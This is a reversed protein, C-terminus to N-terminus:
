AAHRLTRALSSSRLRLLLPPCILCELWQVLLVEDVTVAKLALRNVDGLPGLDSVKTSKNTFELTFFTYCYAVEGLTEKVKTLVKVSTPVHHCASCLKHEQLRWLGFAVRRQAQWHRPLAVRLPSARFTPLNQKIPLSGAMWHASLRLLSKTMFITDSPRNAIRPCAEIGFLSKTQFGSIRLTVGLNRDTHIYAEGLLRCPM